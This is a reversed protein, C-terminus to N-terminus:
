GLKCILWNSLPIIKWTTPPWKTSWSDLTHMSHQSPRRQSEACSSWIQTPWKPDIMVLQSPYLILKKLLLSTATLDPCSKLNIMTLGVIDWMLIVACTRSLIQCVWHWLAEIRSSESVLGKRIGTGPFCQPHEVRFPQCPRGRQLHWRWRQIYRTHWWGLASTYWLQIDRENKSITPLYEMNIGYEYWIWVM